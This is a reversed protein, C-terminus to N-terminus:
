IEKVNNEGNREGTEQLRPLECWIDVEQGCYFNTGFEEFGYPKENNFGEDEEFYMKARRVEGINESELMQKRQELSIGRKIRAVKWKAGELDDTDVWPRDKLYVLIYKNEPPMEGKSIRKLDAMRVGCKMREAIEDIESQYIECYLDNSNEADEVNKAILDKMREAFEDVAKARVEQEYHEIAQEVRYTQILMSGNTYVEDSDKFSYNDIFEKMTKPFEMKDAM